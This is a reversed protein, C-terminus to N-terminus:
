IWPQVYEDEHEHHSVILRVLDHLRTMTAEVARDNSPDANGLALTVGFLGNRIGKHIDKYLDFTVAELPVGDVALTAPINPITATMQREGQRLPDGVIM